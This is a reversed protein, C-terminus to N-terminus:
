SDIGWDADHLWNGYNNTNRFHKRAGGAVSAIETDDPKRVSVPDVGSNYVAVHTGNDLLVVDEGDAVRVEHVWPPIVAKQGNGIAVHNGGGTMYQFIWDDDDTGTRKGQYLAGGSGGYRSGEFIIFPNTLAKLDAYTFGNYMVYEDSPRHWPLWTGPNEPDEGGIIWFGTLSSTAPNVLVVFDPPAVESGVFPRLTNEGPGAESDYVGYAPPASGDTIPDMIGFCDIIAYVDVPGGALYEVAEHIADTPDSAGVIAEIADNVASNDDEIMSILSQRQRDSLPRQMLTFVGNGLDFTIQGIAPYEPDMGEGQWIIASVVLGLNDVTSLVETNTWYSSGNSGAGPHTANNRTWLTAKGADVGGVASVTVALADTETFFSAITAGEPGLFTAEDQTNIVLAVPLVRREGGNEALDDLAAQLGTVDSISVPGGGGTPPAPIATVPYTPGPVGPM